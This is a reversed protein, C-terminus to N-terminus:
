LGPCRARAYPFEIRRAAGQVAGEIWALLSDSRVRRYGVRQPFDHAANEFVVLSDSVTQATFVASAQGSPHAREARAPGDVTGRHDPATLQNALMGPAVRPAGGGGTQQPGIALLLPLFVAVRPSLMSLELGPNVLRSFM